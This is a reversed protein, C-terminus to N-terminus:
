NWNWRHLLQSRPFTLYSKQAETQEEAFHLDYMKKPNLTESSIVYKVYKVYLHMNPGLTWLSTQCTQSPVLIVVYM